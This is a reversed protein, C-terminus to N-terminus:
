PGSTLLESGFRAAGPNPGPAHGHDIDPANKELAQIRLSKLGRQLFFPKKSASSSHRTPWAIRTSRVVCLGEKKPQSSAPHIARGTCCGAAHAGGACREREFFARHVITPDTGTWSADVLASSSSSGAAADGFGQVVRPDIRIPRGLEPRDETGGALASVGTGEELDVHSRNAALHIREFRLHSPTGDGFPGLAAGNSAGQLEKPSETVHAAAVKGSELVLETREEHGPERELM